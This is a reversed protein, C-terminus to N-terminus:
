AFYHKIVINSITSALGSYDYSVEGTKRNKKEKVLTNIKREKFTVVGKKDTDFKNSFGKIYCDNLLKKDDANIKVRTKSTYVTEFPLSFTNKIISELESSAKKYADKVDNTMSLEGNENAKSNIHITELAEYLAPSKFAPIIAYKVLKSNDWSALVRLVTRVVDKNNGFGNENKVSMTDVVKTYVELTDALKEELTEKTAREKELKAVESDLQRTLTYNDDDEDEDIKNKLSKIKKELRSIADETLQIMMSTTEHEVALMFEKKSEENITEAYFNINLTTM